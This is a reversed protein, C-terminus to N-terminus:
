LTGLIFQGFMMDVYFRIPPNTNKYLDIRGAHTTLGM